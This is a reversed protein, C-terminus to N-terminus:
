VVGLAWGSFRERSRPSCEEAIRGPASPFAVERVVVVPPSSRVYERQRAWKPLLCVDSELVRFVHRNKPM